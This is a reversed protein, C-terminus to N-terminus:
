KATTDELMYYKVSEPAYESQGAHHGTKSTMVGGATAQNDDVCVVRGNVHSAFVYKDTAHQLTGLKDSYPQLEHRM